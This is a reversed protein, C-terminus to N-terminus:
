PRTETWSPGCRRELVEAQETPRNIKKAVRAAAKLADDYAAQQEAAVLEEFTPM